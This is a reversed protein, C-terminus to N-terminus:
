FIYAERGLFYLYKYFILLSMDKDYRKCYKQLIQLIKQMNKQLFYQLNKCLINM